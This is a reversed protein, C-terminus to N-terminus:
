EGQQNFVATKLTTMEAMAYRVGERGFGSAKAGGYPYNDVRVMPSDNVIVGGVQLDKVAIRALGLDRVFVAAQLGYSSTNVMEIADSFDKYSEITVVPGFIEESWAKSNHPANELVTPEHMVGTRGGGTLIKAGGEVAERVWTEVRITATEDILPGIVTKPDQPDGVPLQKVAAVYNSVFADYIDAHVFLRQAKICVQGASAFGGVALRQVAWDLKADKHVIAGSNGGLELIVKKRGAIEKLYWGVRASGTFSLVAFREDRIMGEAQPVYMPLISISRGAGAEVLIEGLLLATLPTQPAPKLVISCGAALAPAIKHAVLNLPFNFPAIAAVLGAPVQMTHATLTESAPSLDVALIEGNMRTAEESAIAFTMVARAVEAKAFQLPKGSEATILEALESGRRAIGESARRCIEARKYTPLASLFRFGVQAHKIAQEVHAATAVPHSGALAGDYPSRIEVRSADDVWEGGLLLKGHYPKQISM